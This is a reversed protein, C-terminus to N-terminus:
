RVVFRHQQQQQRTYVPAQGVGGPTGITSFTFSYVPALCATVACRTVMAVNTLVCTPNVCQYLNIDYYNLFIIKVIITKM